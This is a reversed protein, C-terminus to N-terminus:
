ATAHPQDSLAIKGAQLAKLVEDREGFAKVQGEAMLLIKDMQKLVPKKHSVVIVTVNRSKLADIAESLAFEGKEDLNSNPEDLVVLSPSGYLARALGIRQRQGGSLGSSGNALRTDYGQPLRLIMEHVGAMKAAEVVKLPDLEGFRGINEAITGEFLEIDQPLYGIFRGLHNKDWQHVDAGDMRVKGAILPWVGLVGRLVSSKGAASPGIIALSEGKELAFSVGRVVASQGGPPVLMMGECLISGKPDPLAMSDDRAPYKNFLQNLREYSTRASSFGKWTGILLDLPALARGLLISGAIMMGPTIENQIALFAGLGLILSQFMLRLNKSMNTLVSAKDSAQEQKKLFSMHKELWRNKLNNEMGMAAVVEANKVCAAAYNVSAMSEQNAENLLRKTLVENLVALVFLIAVAVIGFIGFYPHFLFLIAIYIPLWPSDFFAFLGNGTLFQRVSTMDNLPQANIQGPENVARKFMSSFIDQNLSHDLKNGIRILMRSRVFELFGMALFLWVAILTIMVLTDESRSTVVRDYVQLMYLPPVLMLLNIFFSFAGVNIFTRRMAGLAKQIESLEHKQSKM